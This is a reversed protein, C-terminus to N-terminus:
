WLYQLSGNESERKSKFSQKSLKRPCMKMFNDNYDDPNCYDFHGCDNNQGHDNNEHNCHMAITSSMIIIIM